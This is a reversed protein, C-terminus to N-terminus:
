LQTWWRGAYLTPQLVLLHQQGLFDSSVLRARHLLAVAPLVVLEKQLPVNNCM